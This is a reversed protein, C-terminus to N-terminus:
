INNRVPQLPMPILGEEITEIKEINKNARRKRLIFFIGVGILVAALCCLPIIISLSIGETGQKKEGEEGKEDKKDKKDKEDKEDEEDKEPDVLTSNYMYRQVEDKSKIVEVIIRVLYKEKLDKKTFNLEITLWKEDKYGEFIKSFIENKHKNGVYSTNIKEISNTEDKKEYINLIYKVRSVYGSGDHANKIVLNSKKTDNNKQIVITKNIYKEYDYLNNIDNLSYCIISYNKSNEDIEKKRVNLKIEKVVDFNTVVLRKRGNYDKISFKVSTYGILNLFDFTLSNNYPISESIDIILYKLGNKFIYSETSKNNDLKSFYRTKYYINHNEKEEKIKILTYDTIVKKYKNKNEENKEIKLYIYCNKNSSFKDIEVIGVEEYNFYFANIKEGKIEYQSNIIKSDLNKQDIIFAEINFLNYDNNKEEYQISDLSFQIRYKNILDTYIYQPFIEGTSNIRNRGDKNIKFIKNNNFKKEINIYIFGINIFNQIYFSKSIETYYNHKFYFDNSTFSLDNFNIYRNNINKIYLIYDTDNSPLFFNIKNYWSFLKIM